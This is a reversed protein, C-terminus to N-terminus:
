SSVTRPRTLIDYNDLGPKRELRAEWSQMETKTLKVSNPYDAKLFEIVEPYEGAWTMRRACDLVFSVCDLLVGGPM